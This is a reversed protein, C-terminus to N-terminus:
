LLVMVKWRTAMVTSLFLVYFDYNINRLFNVNQNYSYFTFCEYIRLYKIYM